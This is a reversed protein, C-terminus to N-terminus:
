GEKAKLGMNALAETVLRTVLMPKEPADLTAKQYASEMEGYFRALEQVTMGVERPPLLELKAREIFARLAPSPEFADTACTTTYGHTTYIIGVIGKDNKAGVVWGGGHTTHRVGIPEFATICTKM